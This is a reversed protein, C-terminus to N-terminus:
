YGEGDRAAVVKGRFHKLVWVFYGVALLLGPFWWILGSQMAISGSAANEVTLDFRSDVTSRLLVPHLCAVTAVLLGAIFLSSGIFALLERRQLLAFVVAGVGGAILAMGVWAFPKHPLAALVLPAVQATSWTCVLWGVLTAAWLKPVWRTVRANVEGSTKLRLYNAGHATLTLLVFLGVGLTYWDIAGAEHHGPPAGPEFGGFLGQEFYVGDSLPVGRLVNGLAVGILLAFMTSGVQFVVDFFARWLSNAVHSRLEIGLGRLILCWVAFIVPLYLGSLGVAVLKPFALFMSGAAALLWVENGDWLPGIAALVERRETDTKAVFRHLVGVGFDFGDLVAWGVVLLAVLWFWLDAM